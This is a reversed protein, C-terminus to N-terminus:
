SSRSYDTERCKSNEVHRPGDIRTRDSVKAYTMETLRDASQTDIGYYSPGFRLSMDKDRSDSTSARRTSESERRAAGKVIQSTNQRDIVVIDSLRVNSLSKPKESM